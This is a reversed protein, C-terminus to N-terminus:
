AAPVARTQIYREYAAHCIITTRDALFDTLRYLLEKHWTPGGKESTERLNHATCILARMPCILRTFRGLLNAHVMHAHVVDPNFERISNPWGFCLARTPYAM